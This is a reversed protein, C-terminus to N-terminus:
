AYSAQWLINYPIGIRFNKKTKKNLEKPQYYKKDNELDFLGNLSACV